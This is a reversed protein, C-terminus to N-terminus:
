ALSPMSIVVSTGENIKSNIIMNGGHLTIIKSALPIGLGHGRINSSNTARYFPQFIKGIDEEAIGIGKDNFVINLIKGQIELIIEVTKNDSYKCANDMLNIFATKLLHENAKVILSNEELPINEFKIDIIYEKHLKILDMRSQWLLEDIRLNKFKIESIDIEVLAMDLLGNILKNLSRIDELISRLADKYETIDRDSLLTVEIQGTISTLPTRLEHSANSVFSRQMEFASQLRGLM